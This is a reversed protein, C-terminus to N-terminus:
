IMLYIYFIIFCLLCVGIKVDLIEGCFFYKVYSSFIYLYIEKELYRILREIGLVWICRMVDNGVLSRFVRM